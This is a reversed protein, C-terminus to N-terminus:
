IANVFKRMRLLGHLPRRSPRVVGIWSVGSVSGLSIRSPEYISPM